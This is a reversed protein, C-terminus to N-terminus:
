RSRGGQHRLTVTGSDALGRSLGYPTAVIEREGTAWRGSVLEAKPGPRGAADVRRRGSGTTRKADIVRRMSLDGVPVM